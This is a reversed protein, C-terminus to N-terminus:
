KQPCRVSEAQPRRIDRMPAARVLRVGSVMTSLMTARGMIEERIVMYVHVIVFVVVIAMGMKHWLVLDFGNGGLAYVINEMFRFMKLFESYGKAQYIGLGSLCMFIIALVAVFMAAQALPNHGMYLDPSKRLFLYWKIDDLLGRRWSKQWVPPAFIQRSVPNGAFAFIIRWFMCVCLLLGATYHARIIWGFYFLNTPNGRLSQPPNGIFYGTAFLIFICGVIAWHWIRVPLQYVYVGQGPKPRINLLNAKM